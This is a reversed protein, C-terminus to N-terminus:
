LIRDHFRTFIVQVQKSAQYEFLPFSHLHKEVDSLSLHM